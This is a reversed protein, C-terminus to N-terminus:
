KLTNLTSQNISQCPPYISRTTKSLSRSSKSSRYYRKCLASKNNLLVCALLPLVYTFFPRDNPRLREADRVPGVLRWGHSVARSCPAASSISILSLFHIIPLIFALFLFSASRKLNNASIRPPRDQESLRVLGLRRHPVSLSCLRM